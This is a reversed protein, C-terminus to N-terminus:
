WNKSLNIWFKHSKWYNQFKLCLKDFIQGIKACFQPLYLFKWLASRMSQPLKLTKPCFICGQDKFSSKEFNVRNFHKNLRSNTETLSWKSITSLMVTSIKRSITVIIKSVTSFYPNLGGFFCNSIHVNTLWQNAEWVLSKSDSSILFLQIRRICPQKSRLFNLTSWSKPSTLSELNNLSSSIKSATMVIWLCSSPSFMIRLFLTM